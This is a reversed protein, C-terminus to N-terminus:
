ALSSTAQKFMYELQMKLSHQMVFYSDLCRRRTQSLRRAGHIRREVNEVAEYDQAQKFMYEAQM